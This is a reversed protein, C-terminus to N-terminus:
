PTSSAALSQEPEDGDTGQDSKEADTLKEEESEGAKGAEGAKQKDEESLAVKRGEKRNIRVRNLGM